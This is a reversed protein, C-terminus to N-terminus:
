CYPPCYVGYGILRNDSLNFPNPTKLQPSPPTTKACFDIEALKLEFLQQWQEWAPCEWPVWSFEKTSSGRPGSVTRLDQRAPGLRLLSVVVKCGANYLFCLMRDLRLYHRFPLHHLVLRHYLGLIQRISCNLRRRTILRNHNRLRLVQRGDFAKGSFEFRIFCRFRHM